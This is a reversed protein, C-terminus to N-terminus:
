FIEVSFVTLIAPNMKCILWCIDPLVISVLNEGGVFANGRKVKFVLKNVCVCMYKTHNLPM